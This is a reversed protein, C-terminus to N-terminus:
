YNADNVWDTGGNGSRKRIVYAVGPQLLVDDGITTSASGVKRWGSGALYYYIETASPNFGSAPGFAFLEDQRNFEAPSDKIVSMTQDALRLGSNNLSVAAPRQISIYTDNSSGVTAGAVFTTSRNMLVGGLNTLSVPAANRRRVTFAENPRLIHDGFDTGGQGDARWGQGALYYVILAASKNIGVSTLDPLLVDDRLQFELPRAEIVPAGGTELVDKIRWYPRIKFSDGDALAATPNGPLPHNLLSDGETDLTISGTGNATIKYFLGKLAGSTFEVYHTQSQTVAVYAWQNATWGPSLPGALVDFSNATFPTNVEGSFVADRLMPLSMVNDSAGQISLTYYGVPDTFVDIAELSAAISGTMALGLALTRFRLATTKMAQPNLTTKRTRLLLTKDPTLPFTARDKQSALLKNCDRSASAPEHLELLCAAPHLNGMRMLNPPTLLRNM